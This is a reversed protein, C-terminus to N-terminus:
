HDHTMESRPIADRTRDESQKELVMSWAMKKADYFPVNLLRFRRRISRPGDQVVEYFFEYPQKISESDERVFGAFNQPIPSVPSFDEPPMAGWGPRPVGCADLYPATPIALGNLVDETLQGTIEEIRLSGVPLIGASYASLSVSTLDTVLPRPLIPIQAIVREHGEGREKGGWKTWVMWVQYPRLGFRTNLQRLRDATPILRTALPTGCGITLPQDTPAGGTVALCAACIGCVGGCSM